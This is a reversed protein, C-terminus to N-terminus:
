SVAGDMALRMAEELSAGDIAPTAVVHGQAMILLRDCVIFLEEMESSAVVIAMGEAALSRLLDYIQNKAEIDVGRTPEDLLLIRIGSNLCKGLVVKQQNGGSLTRAPRRADDVKIALRDISAAAIAEERRQSLFGGIRVRSPCSMVLNNSVSMNLALGERKRDEPAFGLGAAIMHRPSEGSLRAGVVEIRGAAPRSIGYITRLLRTRGSGLLGALGLIEGRRLDFSVNALKADSVNMVRLVVPGQGNRLSSGGFDPTGGGTMLRVIESTDLDAIPKTAVHRGDRLVTVSDAIKPIEDMRHSVYIISVGRSSLRRVLALLQDVEAAPLSSTPEDLILVRPRFSLARAIEVIQQHAISIRGAKAKADLKVGLEALQTAASEELASRNFFARRGSAEGWRGLFINEAVSLEPVIALEQNVIAIGRERAALPSTLRVVENEVRVEGRDPMIVGALIKVLTSKGAGNKGLLARVEGRAIDFDVGALARVGPYTKVCDRVALVAVAASPAAVAQPAQTPTM